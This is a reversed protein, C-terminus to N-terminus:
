GTPLWLFSQVLGDAVHEPEDILLRPHGRVIFHEAYEILFLNQRDGVMHVQHCPVAALNSDLMTGRRDKGSFSFHNANHQHKAVHGLPTPLAQFGRLLSGQEFERLVRDKDDIHLASDQKPAPPRFGHHAVGLRLGGACDSVVQKAGFERFLESFDFSLQHARSM